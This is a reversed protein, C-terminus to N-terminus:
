GRVLRRKLESWGACRASSLARVEAQGAADCPDIQHQGFIFRRVIRSGEIEYPPFAQVTHVDRRADAVVGIASKSTARRSPGAYSLPTRSGGEPQSRAEGFDRSPSPSRADASVISVIAASGLCRPARMPCPWSGRRVHHSALSLRRHFGDCCNVSDGQTNQPQSSGLASRDAAVSRAMSARGVRRHVSSAM